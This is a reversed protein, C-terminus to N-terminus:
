YKHSLYDNITISKSFIVSAPIGCGNLARVYSKASEMTSNYSDGEEGYPTIVNYLPIRHDRM